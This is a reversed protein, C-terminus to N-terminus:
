FRDPNTLDLIWMTGCINGASFVAEFHEFITTKPSFNQNLWRGDSNAMYFESKFPCALYSQSALYYTTQKHTFYNYSFVNSFGPYAYLLCMGVRCSHDNGM